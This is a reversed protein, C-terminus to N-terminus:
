PEAMGRDELVAWRNAQECKAEKPGGEEARNRASTTVISVHLWRAEEDGAHPSRKGKTGGAM